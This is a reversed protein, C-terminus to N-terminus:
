LPFYRYVYICDLALNRPSTTRTIRMLKPNKVSKVQDAEYIKRRVALAFAEATNTDNVLNGYTTPLDTAGINAAGETAPSKEADGAVTPDDFRYLFSGDGQEAVSTGNLAFNEVSRKTGEKKTRSTDAPNSTPTTIPDSQSHRSTANSEGTGATQNTSKGVRGLPQDVFLQATSTSQKSQDRATHNKHPENMSTPSQERETLKYFKEDEDIIQDVFYPSPPPTPFLEEGDTDTFGMNDDNGTARTTHQNFKLPAQPLRTGRM